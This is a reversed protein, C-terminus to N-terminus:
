DADNLIVDLAATLEEGSNVAFLADVASEPKSSVDVISHTAVTKLAERDANGVTMSFGYYSTGPADIEWLRTQVHRYLAKMLSGEHAIQLRRDPRLGSKVSSYGVIDAFACEGDIERYLTFAYEVDEKTGASVDDLDLLASSVIVFDPNSSILSVDASDLLVQRLDGILGSIEEIYLNECSYSSINPLNVMTYPSKHERVYEIAGLAIVSEYWDGRANNLAGGTVQPYEGRVLDACEALVGSFDNLDQIRRGNLAGVFTEVRNIARKGDGNDRTYTM